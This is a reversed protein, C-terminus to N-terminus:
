QQFRVGRMKTRISHLSKQATIVLINMDTGGFTCNTLKEPIAPNILREGKVNFIQLGTEAAVYLNGLADVCVGDAFDADM